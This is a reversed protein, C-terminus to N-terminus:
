FDGPLYFILGNKRYWCSWGVQSPADLGSRFDHPGTWSGQGEVPWKEWQRGLGTVLPCSSSAPIFTLLHAMELNFGCTNLIHKTGILLGNKQSHTTLHHFVWTKHLSKSDNLRLLWKLTSTKPYWSPSNQISPPCHTVEDIRTRLRPHINRVHQQQSSCIWLNIKNSPNYTTRGFKLFPKQLSNWSAM